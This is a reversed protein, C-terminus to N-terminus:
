RWCVCTLHVGWMCVCASVHGAHMGFHQLLPPAACCRTSSRASRGGTGFPERVDCACWLCVLLCMSLTCVSTNYFPPSGRLMEYILTGFSWWDVAKGYPEGRLVEPALYEPTGCFTDTRSEKM